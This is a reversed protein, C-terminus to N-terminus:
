PKTPWCARRRYKPRRRLEPTATADPDEESAATAATLPCAYADSIQEDTPVEVPFEFAYEVAEPEPTGTADQAASAISALLLLTTLILRKM